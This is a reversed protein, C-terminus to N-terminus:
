LQELEELARRTSGRAFLDFGLLRETLARLPSPVHEPIARAGAELRKLAEATDIWDPMPDYFPHQSTLLVHLMVGVGFLDSGKRAREHRVVEPAMYPPSGLAAPYTTISTEDLIRTLGLDIIVPESWQGRRLVVNDLKVDRHVAEQQHLVLLGRLIGRGFALVDDVAPWRELAQSRSTPGDIFEFLLIKRPEGALMGETVDDLRVLHPSAGRRLGEIERDLRDLPYDTKRIIKAAQERDGRSIRWTEGFSGGGIYTAATAGLAGAVEAPAFVPPQAYTGRLDFAFRLVSDM